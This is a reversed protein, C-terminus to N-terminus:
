FGYKAQSQMKTMKNLAWTNKLDLEREKAQHALYTIQHKQKQKQTPLGERKRSFGHQPKEESLAKTMWEQKTLLADDANVDIFNIADARGRKGALRMLTAEDIGVAAATTAAEPQPLEQVMTSPGVQEYHQHQVMSPSPGEPHISPVRPEERLPELTPAIGTVVHSAAVEPVVKAYNTDSEESLSFFDSTGTPAEDEEDDDSVNGVVGAAPPPPKKTVKRAPKQTQTPRKTLVHPVLSRKAEKASVNKPEPLVSFLGSGSRSPNVKKKPPEKVEEDDDDDAFESLSPILIKVKKAKKQMPPPQADIKPPGGENNNQQKKLDQTVKWTEVTPVDVVEDEVEEGVPLLSMVPVPAPVSSFLGSSPKSEVAYDDDEDVITEVGSPKPIVNKPTDASPKKADIKQPPKDNLTEEEDESDTGMDSNDSYAVLAM